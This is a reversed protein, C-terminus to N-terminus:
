RDRTRRRGLSESRRPAARVRRAIALDGEGLLRPVVPRLGRGLATRLESTLQWSPAATWRGASIWRRRAPWGDLEVGAPM